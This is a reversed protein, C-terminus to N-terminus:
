MFSVIGVEESAFHGQQILIEGAQVLSSFNDERAEIESRLQVHNNIMSMTTYVDKVPEEAQIEANANDSWKILDKCQPCFIPSCLYPIILAFLLM